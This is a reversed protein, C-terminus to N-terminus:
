KKSALREFIIFFEIGQRSEISNYCTQFSKINFSKKFYSEYESRTGGYPPGTDLEFDFLVGSLKGNPALLDYTKKAYAARFQPKLSSFFTQELILDYQGEHTFYNGLILHQQPFNTTREHLNDLVKKVLDIVFVNKFGLEHLYQAEHAYGCGPILIRIEKDTLQKIYEKLPTSIYGIDWSAENKFYREEWYKKDYESNRM